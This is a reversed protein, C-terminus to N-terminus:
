GGKVKEIVLVGEGANKFGFVTKLDKGADVHGFDHEPASFQIRPQGAADGGADTPPGTQQAGTPQQM